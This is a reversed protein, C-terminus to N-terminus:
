RGAHPHHPRHQRGLRSRGGALRLSRRAPVRLAGAGGLAPRVLTRRPSRNSLFLDRQRREMAKIRQQRVKAREVLKLAKGLKEAPNATILEDDKAANLLARLTAHMIRVSDTAHSGRRGALFAKIDGRTLDRVRTAGFRPLLHLRLTDAYSAITRPKLTTVVQHQWREAYQSLTM